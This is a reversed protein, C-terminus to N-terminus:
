EGLGAGKITEVVAAALRRDHAAEELRAAVFFFPSAEMFETGHELWGPLGPMDPNQAFVVYGPGRRAVEVGIGRQTEGSAVRVRATAERAIRTATVGAVDVVVPELLEPFRELAALVAGDDADITLLPAM